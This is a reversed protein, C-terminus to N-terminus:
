WGRFVLFGVWFGGFGWGFGWLYGFGVFGAFLLCCRGAVVCCLVWFGLRLCGLGLFCFGHLGVFWGLCLFVAWVWWGVFFLCSFFGWFFVSVVCVVVGLLICIFMCLHMMYVCCGLCFGINDWLVFICCVGFVM